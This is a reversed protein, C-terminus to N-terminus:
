FTAAFLAFSATGHNLTDDEYYYELDTFGYRSIGGSPIRAGVARATGMGGGTPLGDPGANNSRWEQMACLSIDPKRAWNLSLASGALTAWNLASLLVDRRDAQAILRAKNKLNTITAVNAGNTVVRAVLMDDMTSDFDTDKEDLASPNYAADTLSKLVFGGAETFRLHYTTNAATALDLEATLHYGGGRIVMGVNAPIRVNGAVVASVGVEGTSTLVEPFIPLRVRMTELMIGIAQSLQTLDDPDPTLGADVIVKVIERQPHEIAQKPVKSGAVADPTNRDVYSANPDVSGYPAQYKM